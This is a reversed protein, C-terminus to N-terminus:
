TTVTRVVTMQSRLVPSKEEKPASSIEEVKLMQPSHELEYVFQTLQELTSEGNLEVEFRKMWKDSKIPNPKVDSISMGNKRAAQEVLSLIRATEEEDTGGELQSLNPYKAAEEIIQDKQRLYTKAKRLQMEMSFIEDDMSVIKAQLPRWVGHYGGAILLVTLTLYLIKKERASLKTLFQKM